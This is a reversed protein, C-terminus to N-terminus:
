KDPTRRPLTECFSVVSAGHLTITTGEGFFRERYAPAFGHFTRCKPFPQDLLSAAEVATGTAIIHIESENRGGSPTAASTPLQRCNVM